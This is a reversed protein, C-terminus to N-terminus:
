PRGKGGPRKRASEAASGDSLQYLSYTWNRGEFPFACQDVLIYNKGPSRKGRVVVYKVAGNQILESHEEDQEDLSLNFTCFFSNEPEM